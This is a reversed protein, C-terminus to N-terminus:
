GRAAVVTPKPDHAGCHPRAYFGEDEYWFLGCNCRDGSNAACQSCGCYSGRKSPNPDASPSSVEAATQDGVEILDNGYTPSRAAAAERLFRQAHEVDTGAADALERSHVIRGSAEIGKIARQMRMESEERKASNGRFRLDDVRLGAIPMATLLVVTLAGRSDAPTGLDFPRCRFIAQRLEDRRSSEYVESVRRDTFTLVQIERGRGESDSWGGYRQYQMVM